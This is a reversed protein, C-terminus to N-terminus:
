NCTKKYVFYFYNFLFKKILCKFYNKIFLFYNNKNILYNKKSFNLYFFNEKLIKDQMTYLKTRQFEHYRYFTYFKNIIKIRYNLFIRLFFFYDYSYKIEKSYFPILELIKARFMVSSNCIINECPFIKNFNVQDIPAKISNIIKNNENVIKVYTAVLGLEPNSDLNKVQIKLRDKHSYDDSDLIAIYKGKSIKLALDTAKYAGINKKLNIIKIKKDRFNKILNLTSDTSNDNVLILEWNKYTQDLISQVSKKIYKESNYAAMVISVKIKKKM